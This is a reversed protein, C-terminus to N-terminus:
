RGRSRRIKEALDRVTSDIDPQVQSALAFTLGEHPPISMCSSTCDMHAIHLPYPSESSSRREDSRSSECFHFSSARRRNHIMVVFCLISLPFSYRFLTSLCRSPYKRPLWSLSIYRPHPWLGTFYQRFGWRANTKIHTGFSSSFRLYNEM